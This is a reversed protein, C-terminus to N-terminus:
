EPSAELDAALRTLWERAQLTATPYDTSARKVGFREFARQRAAIAEPSWDVPQPLSGVAGSADRVIDIDAKGLQWGPRVEEEAIGMEVLTVTWMALGGVTADRDNM